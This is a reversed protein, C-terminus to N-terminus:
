KKDGKSPVRVTAFARKCWLARNYDGVYKVVLTYVGPSLEPLTFFLWFGLFYEPAITHRPLSMQKKSRARESAEDLSPGMVLRNQGDFLYVLFSSDDLTVNDVNKGTNNHFLFKVRVRRLPKITSTPIIVVGGITTAISV